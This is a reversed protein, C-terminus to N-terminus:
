YIRYKSPSEWLKAKIFGCVEAPTQLYGNRRYFESGEKRETYQFYIIFVSIKQRKELRKLKLMCAHYIHKIKQSAVKGFHDIILSKSIGEIHIITFHRDKPALFKKLCVNRRFPVANRKCIRYNENKPVVSMVIKFCESLLLGSQASCMDVTGDTFTNDAIVKLCAWIADKKRHNNNLCLQAARTDFKYYEAIEICYNKQKGEFNDACMDLAEYGSMENGTSTSTFTHNAIVSLCDLATKRNNDKLCTQVARTTFKFNKVIDICHNQNEDQFYDACMNLAEYGSMENGTSTFAYSPRSETDVQEPAKVMEGDVKAEGNVGLSNGEPNPLNIDNTYVGPSNVQGSQSSAWTAIPV